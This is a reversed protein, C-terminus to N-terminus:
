LTYHINFSHRVMDYPNPLEEEVFGYSQLLHCNALNGYTNFIEQGQFLVSPFTLYNHCPQSPPQRWTQLFVLVEKHFLDIFINLM